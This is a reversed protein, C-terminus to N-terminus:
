YNYKQNPKMEEETCKVIADDISMWALASNEDEKIRLADNEDAEFLYCCDLHVHSSVFEGKKIHSDVTIIQIGYIGDSLLKLDDIGTEEEAEKKAVVM